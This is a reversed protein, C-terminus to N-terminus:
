NTVVAKSCVAKNKTEVPHSRCYAERNQEFAKLHPGITKGTLEAGFDGPQARSTAAFLRELIQQGVEARYHSHEWYHQMADKGTAQPVAETTIANFGSFDMLRIDCGEQRRADVLQVLDEKWRDLDQWNTEWYSLEALAHVPHFFFRFTTGQRCYDRTVTDLLQLAAHVNDPTGQPDGKRIIKDFATPTGGEDAMIYELCQDSKHGYTALISLCQQANPDVLIKVADTTTTMSISRKVNLLFRKFPYGPGQAVLDDNFDTNGAKQRFQWGYDLGWVVTDPRHLTSTHKLMGIADGLSAGSIALNFVRKGQFLPTATPLGIEARSSGLYVVEPQYRYVAYTKAWPVIKQQAPSLRKLLPTDWQHLYYPDILYNITVISALLLLVTLGLALFFSRLSTSKSAPAM